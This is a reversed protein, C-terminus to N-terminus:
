KKDLNWTKVDIISYIRTRIKFLGADNTLLLTNRYDDWEVMFRKDLVGNNKSRIVENLANITYLTNSQKKRHLSITDQVNEVFDESYEVNYTCILQHEDDQNAFVYIKDYLIENCSVIIDIAENLRNRKTFTCLLQTKM